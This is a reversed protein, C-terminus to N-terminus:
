GRWYAPVDWIPREAEARAQDRSVGIDRLAADDLEALRRRERRVTLGLRLRALLSHSRHGGHPMTTSHATMTM